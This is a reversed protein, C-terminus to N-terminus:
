SEEMVLGYVLVGVAALASVARWARLDLMPFLLKDAFLIGNNLALLIFCVASWFLLRSRSERHARLLLWACALSTIACLSYIIPAM